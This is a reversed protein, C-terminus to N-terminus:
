PRSGHAALRQRYEDAPRTSIMVKERSIPQVGPEPANESSYSKSRTVPNLVMEVRQILGPPRECRGEAMSGAGSRTPVIGSATIARM